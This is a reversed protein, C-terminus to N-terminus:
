SRARTKKFVFDALEERDIDVIRRYRGETSKIEYRAPLVVHKVSVNAAISMLRADEGFVTRNYPGAYVLKIWDDTWWNGFAYPFYTGYWLFHPRGVFSHTLRSANLFPDVPGTVGLGPIPRMAALEAVFVSSWQDVKLVTDDNIRYFYDAGAHYAREAVYNVAWTNRSRTNAFVSFTLSPLCAEPWKVAWHARWWELMLAVRTANDYWADGTDAAIDIAYRFRAPEVSEIFSPLAYKFLPLTEIAHISGRLNRSTVSLPLEILPLTRDCESPPLPSLPPENKGDSTSSAVNGSSFSHMNFLVFVLGVAGMGILLKSTRQM